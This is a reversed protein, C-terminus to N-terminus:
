RTSLFKELILNSIPVCEDLRGYFRLPIKRSICWDILLSSDTAYAVAALVEETEKGRNETVNSLYEGNIGGLVLKM